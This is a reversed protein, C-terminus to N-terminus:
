VRHQAEKATSRRRVMMIIPWVALVDGGAAPLPVWVLGVPEPGDGDDPGLVTEGDTVSVAFVSTMGSPYPMEWLYDVDEEGERRVAQEPTEGPEIGRVPLTWWRSAGPGDRV